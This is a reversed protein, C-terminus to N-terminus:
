EFQSPIDRSGRLVCAVEIGDDMPRYFIVYSGVPFGRLSPDLDERGRGMYPNEALVSFKKELTAILRAAREPSEIAIYEWIEYLDLRASPAIIVTPM